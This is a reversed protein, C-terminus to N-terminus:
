AVIQRCPNASAKNPASTFVYAALDADATTPLHDLFQQFFNDKLDNPGPPYNKFIIELVYARNKASLFIQALLSPEKLQCVIQLMMKECEPGFQEMLVIIDMLVIMMAKSQSNTQIQRVVMETLNKVFNRMKEPVLHTKLSDIFTPFIAMQHICDSLRQNDFNTTPCQEFGNTFAVVQERKLEKISIIVEELCYLQPTQLSNQVICTLLNPFIRRIADRFGM